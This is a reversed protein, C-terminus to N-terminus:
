RIFEVLQCSGAAVELSFGDAKSRPLPQRTVKPQSASHLKRRHGPSLNMPKGLSKWTEYASGKGPLIETRVVHSAQFGALDLSTIWPKAARGQRHNWFILSLRDEQGNITGIAGRSKGAPLGGLGVRVDLLHHFLEFARASSKPIGDVTYLGYGGHFPAFHFGAEEYIDTLNWFLSGDGYEEIGSLAGAILAANNADDHNEALPGASSNWEGWIIPGRFKATDAERRVRTFHDYLFDLGLLKVKGHAADMFPVDSPYIHTSVFDVPTRSAACFNLFEPIWAARATAPGGVQFHKDVKKIALAAERYLHFYDAQSGEWFPINPENWIEFRWTRLRSAGYTDKLFSMLRFVLVSWQRYNNPPSTVARYHTVTKDPNKALASPMFSLELFPTAGTALAANLIRELGSFCCHRRGKEDQLFVGVDDSLTGHCRWYKMGLERHALEMHQQVDSRMVIPAHCTNFGFEWVRRLPRSDSPDIHLRPELTM